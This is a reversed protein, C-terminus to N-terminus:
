QDKELLAAAISKAELCDKERYFRLGFRIMFSLSDGYAKSVVGLEEESLFHDSLQRPGKQNAGVNLYGMVEDAPDEIDSDEDVEDDEPDVNAFFKAEACDAEKNIDLEMHEMFIASNGHDRNVYFLEKKSFLHDVLQERSPNPSNDNDLYEKDENYIDAFKAATKSAKQCDESNYFDLEFHYMMASTNGWAHNVYDLAAQSFYHDAVHRELENEFSKRANEKKQDTNSKPVDQDPQNQIESM